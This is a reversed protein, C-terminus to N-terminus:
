LHSKNNLYDRFSLDINEFKIDSNKSLDALIFERDIDFGNINELYRECM